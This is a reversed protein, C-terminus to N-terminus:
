FGYQLCSCFFPLNVLRTVPWNRLVHIFSCIVFVVYRVDPLFHPLTFDSNVNVRSKDDQSAKPAAPQLIIFTM